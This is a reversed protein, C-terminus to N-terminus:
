GSPSIVLRAQEAEKKKLNMAMMRWTLNEMREQNPLRMKQRSYTKWVQVALPDQKQMEEPDDLHTSAANDHWNPFIAENLVETRVRNGSPSIDLKARRDDNVSSHDTLPTSFQITQQHQSSSSSSSSSSSPSSLRNNPTTSSPQPSTSSASSPIRQSDSVLLGLFAEFEPKPTPEQM